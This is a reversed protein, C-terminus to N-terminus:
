SKENLFISSENRNKTYFLEVKMVIHLIYNKIIKKRFFM